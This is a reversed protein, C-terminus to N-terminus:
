IPSGHNRSGQAHCETCRSNVVMQVKIEGIAEGSLWHATRAQREWVDVDLENALGTRKVKLYTRLRVLVVLHGLTLMM